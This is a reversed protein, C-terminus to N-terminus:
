ATYCLEQLLAAEEALVASLDRGHLVTRWRGISRAHVTSLAGVFDDTSGDAGLFSTLQAAVREPESALQEYRITISRSPDLGELASRAASVYRRWAWGCRGAETLSEFESRRHPEVWFRAYNGLAHGADDTPPVADASRLWGRDLLSAAVDRGDRLLHVFRSAPFAEAIEGILFTSEPTQEVCRRHTAMAVRQSIKVISRIRDIVEPRHGAEVDMFLGPIVNKFRPVEGLDVFGRVAGIAGATFTTGSRPCGVVFILDDRAPGVMRLPNFGYRHASRLLTHRYMRLRAPLSSEDARPM